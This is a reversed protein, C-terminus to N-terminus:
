GLREEVLAVAMSFKPAESVRESEAILKQLEARLDDVFGADTILANLEGLLRFSNRKLNASGIFAAPAAGDTVLAKAHVMDPHLYARLEGGVRLLHRLALMNAHPYVNARRPLILDIAAGRELAPGLVAAGVRDLYAMAITLREVGPDGCLREFAARIEFREAAPLNAVLSVPGPAADGGALKVSLAEVADGRLRVMFDRWPEFRDGLNIGGFLASPAGRGRLFLAYKSHDPWTRAVTEIRDPHARAMAQARPLLTRTREWLRALHSAATYDISLRASAGREAARGLAALIRETSQGPEILYLSLLIRDGAGSRELESELAAVAAQYGVILEVTV